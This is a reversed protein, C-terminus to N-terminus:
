LPHMLFLHHVTFTTNDWTWTTRLSIVGCGTLPIWYNNHSILHCYVAQIERELCREM